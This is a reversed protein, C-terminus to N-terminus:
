SRSPPRPAWGPRSRPHRVLEPRELVARRRSALRRGGRDRGRPLHRLLGEEQAPDADALATGPQSVSLWYPSRGTRTTGRRPTPRSASGRTPRAPPPTLDPQAAAARLRVLPRPASRPAAVLPPARDLPGRLAPTTLRRRGPFAARAAEHVSDFRTNLQAGVYDTDGPGSDVMVAQADHQTAQSPEPRRRDGRMPDCPPPPLPAGTSLRPRSCGSPTASRTLSRPRRSGLCRKSASRPLSARVARPTAQRRPQLPRLAPHRDQRVSVRQRARPRGPEPRTEVLRLRARAM